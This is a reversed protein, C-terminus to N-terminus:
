SKPPKPKEELERLVTDILAKALAKTDPEERRVPRLIIRREKRSRPSKPQSSPTM